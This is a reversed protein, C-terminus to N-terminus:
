HTLNDEPFIVTEILHSSLGADANQPYSHPHPFFGVHSRMGLPLSPMYVCEHMYHVGSNSHGLQQLHTGAMLSGLDLAPILGPNEEATLIGSLSARRVLFLFGCSCCLTPQSM